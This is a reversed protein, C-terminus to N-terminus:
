FFCIARNGRAFSTIIFFAPCEIIPSFGSSVLLIMRSYKLYDAQYVIKVGKLNWIRLSFRRAGAWTATKENVLCQMSDMVCAKLGPPM